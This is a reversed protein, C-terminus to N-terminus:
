NGLLYFLGFHFHTKQLIVKIRLQPIRQPGKPLLISEADGEPLNPM